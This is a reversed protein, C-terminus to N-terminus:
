FDGGDLEGYNTDNFCSECLVRHVTPGGSPSVFPIRAIDERTGCEECSPDPTFVFEVIDEVGM